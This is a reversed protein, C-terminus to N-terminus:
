EEKFYNLQYDILFEKIVKSVEKAILNHGLSTPHVGDSLIENMPIKLAYENLISQMPIFYDAYTEALEKVIIIEEDLEKKWIDEYEGIPYAFPEILLIKTHPSKRKIEQILKIYNEKFLQPTMFKNYRHYHWVENIGILISILDPQIAIADKEWRQLLETTRDGSIGRNVLLCNTVSSLLEQVYGQGLDYISHRNRNADTVSDGQFLITPYPTDAQDEDYIFYEIIKLDNHAMGFVDYAKKVIGGHSEPINRSALNRRDVPYILYDYTFHSRAYAIIESIGELGYHNGHSSKKIWIGLEPTKTNLHHIGMCGIFENTEKLIATFVIEEGANYKDISSKIFALTDNIDDAPKPYMYRTIEYNFHTFIDHAYEYTVPKLILRKTILEMFIEM